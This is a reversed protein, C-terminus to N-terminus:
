KKLIDEREKLLYLITELKENGGEMDAIDGLSMGEMNLDSLVRRLKGQGQGAIEKMLEYRKDDGLGKKLIAEAAKKAPEQVEIKFILQRRELSLDYFDEHRKLAAEAYNNFLPAFLADMRNKVEPDGDFKVAKWSPLGISNMMREAPTNEPTSRVGGLVRGMDTMNNPGRSPLNRQEEKPLQFINDIYRTAENYFQSGQRRDPVALDGTAVGVGINVPDLPRTVGSFIGAVFNSIIESSGSAADWFDGDLYMSINDLVAQAGEQTTRFTQAGYVEAMTTKLDDPVEGDKVIHALAQGAIRGFSEPFDYTTDKISGDGEREQNWALGAEIKEIAGPVFSAVIGWGTIGKALLEAEEDLSADVKAGRFKKGQHRLFNVMSFDGLTATATNFFRGFPIAYGSVPNNSLKEIFKAIMLSFNSGKKDTWAKSATERLTRDMAPAMVNEQFRPSAMELWKDPRSMFENYTTGYERLIARDLSTVLSFVKTIEDQLTVGALTQLGNVVKETAEFGKGKINFDKLPNASEAAEGTGYRFLEKAVKPNAELLAMGEELTANLDLLAYGRRLTGLMSGRGRKMMEKAGALDGKVGKFVAQGFNLAGLTMDSVSNLLTLQSWGKVNLGTTGPHATVMRKWVSQVWAGYAAQSAEDMESEKALTEMLKNVTKDTDGRRVFDGIRRSLYLDLGAYSQRLKWVQAVDQPKYGIGLPKGTAKEFNRVASRVIKPDLWNIADGVWNSIKDDTGRPVYVFGAKALSQVLGDVEQGQKNTYGFLFTDFFDINDRAVTAELGKKPLDVLAKAKAESWSAMGDMNDRFNAFSQQLNANVANLDIRDKMAQTIQDKDKGMFDTKFAEYRQFYPAAATNETAKSLGQALGRAGYTMAPLAIVGLASIATQTPSYSEQAGTDIKVDQNLVDLGTITVLDTAGAGVAARKAGTTGIKKFGEKMVTQAAANAAQEAINKAVGSKLQAELTSQFATKAAARLAVSAGKTGAASFAKGVGLSLITTPDWIASAMYDGVADFSESWTGEGIFANDMSDFLKYGVGMMAKTKDDAVAVYAVENATTVSQGGAFSRHYNQWTEFLEEDSMDEWSGGTAGGALATAGAYLINQDKFRASMNERVLSMLDQDALFDEKTLPKNEYRKLISDARSLPDQPEPRRFTLGPTAGPAEQTQPRKFTLTEM